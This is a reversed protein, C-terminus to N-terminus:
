SLIEEGVFDEVVFNENVPKINHWPLFERGQHLDGFFGSSVELGAIANGKVLIDAVTGQDEGSTTLIKSGLWGKQSLTMMNKHFKKINSKNPVIIGDKNIIRIHQIKVFLLKQWLGSSLIVLGEINGSENALVFDIVRGVEERKRGALVPLNRIDRGKLM